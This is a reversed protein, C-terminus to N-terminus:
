PIQDDKIKKFSWNINIDTEDFVKFGTVTGLSDRVMNFRSPNAYALGLTDKNLERIILGETYIENDHSTNYFLVQYKLTIIATDKDIVYTGVIEEVKNKKYQLGINEIIGPFPVQPSTINHLLLYAVLSENIYNVIQGYYYGGFHRHKVLQKRHYINKFFYDKVEKTYERNDLDEMWDYTEYLHNRYKLTGNRFQNEVRNLLDGREIYLRNLKKFVEDYQGTLIDKQNNLQRFSGDSKILPYNSRGLRVFSRMDKEFYSQPKDGKLFEDLLQERKEWWKSVLFAEEIDNLLDKEVEKFLKLVKKHNIKEQHYNNIQLALLIGIVVLIIEGIAYRMYKLAKNDDAMQKRIRRFFPIM